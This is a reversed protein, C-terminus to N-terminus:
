RTFGFIDACETDGDLKEFSIDHPKKLCKDNRIDNLGVCDKVIARLNRNIINKFRRELREFLGFNLDRNLKFKAHSIWKPSLSHLHAVLWSLRRNLVSTFDPRLRDESEFSM